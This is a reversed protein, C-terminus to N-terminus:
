SRNWSWFLEVKRNFPEETRRLQEKRLSIRSYADLNSGGVRIRRDDLTDHHNRSDACNNLPHHCSDRTTHHLQPDPQSEFPVTRPGQSDRISSRTPYELIYQRVVEPPPNKVAYRPATVGTPDNRVHQFTRDAHTAGTPPNNAEHHSM